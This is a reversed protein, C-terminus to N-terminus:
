EQVAGNTMSLAIAFDLIADRGLALEDAPAHVECGDDPDIGKETSVGYRDAIPCASFRVSWGNPLESSFPLGGGGGTRAGIIRVGPLGKMVAVFDNAASYCSRNTLIRVPKRWRVRGASAPSYRIEYPSSFDDHGPGTKHRIFGGCIEEEIFRGVLIDVNTLLGGGNDRIDLILADCDALSSLVYDLSTESIRQSFSPYYMYGVRGGALKKYMIGSVTHWDFGLYYQQLTRLSFDQPYDTWWRRYYSVDFQSSLNVHGDELEALMESCLRFLEFRNMDKKLRSRYKDGITKWDIDKESFFCYHNDVADYLANFNGEPDDAYEPTDHCASLSISALLALSVNIILRPIKM